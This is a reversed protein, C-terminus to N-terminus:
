MISRKPVFEVFEVSKNISSTLATHLDIFCSLFHLIFPYSPFGKGKLCVVEGVLLREAGPLTLLPVTLPYQRNHNTIMETVRKMDEDILKM